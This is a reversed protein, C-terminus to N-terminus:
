WMVIELVCYLSIHNRPCLEQVDKFLIKDFSRDFTLDYLTKFINFPMVFTMIIMGFLRLNPSLFVFNTFCCVTIIILSNNFPLSKMLLHVNLTLVHHEQM